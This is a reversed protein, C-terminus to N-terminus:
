KLLDKAFLGELKKVRAELNSLSLASIDQPELLRRPFARSGAYWRFDGSRCAFVRWKRDDSFWSVSVPFVEGGVRVYFINAHGDKLLIEDNRLAYLVDGLDLEKINFEKM